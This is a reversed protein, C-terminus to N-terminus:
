LFKLSADGGDLGCSLECRIGSPLCSLNPEHECRVPKYADSLHPKKDLKWTSRQQQTDGINSHQTWLCTM